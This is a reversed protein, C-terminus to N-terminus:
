FDGQKITGFDWVQGGENTWSFEAQGGNDIIQANVSNTNSSNTTKQTTANNTKSNEIKDSANQCAIICLTLSLSIFFLRNM